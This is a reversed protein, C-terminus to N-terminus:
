KQLHQLEYKDYQNTFLPCVPQHFENQGQIPQEFTVQVQVYHNTNSKM